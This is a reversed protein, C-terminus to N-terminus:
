VDGVYINIYIKITALLLESMHHCLPKPLTDSSESAGIGGVDDVDVGVRGPVLMVFMLM